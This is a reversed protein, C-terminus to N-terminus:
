TKGELPSSMPRGYQRAWMTPPHFPEISPPLSRATQGGPPLPQGEGLEGMRDSRHASRLLSVLRGVITTRSSLPAVCVTSSLVAGPELCSDDTLICQDLRAAAGVRCREWVASRSIVAQEAVTSGAGVTTPGIIMAGPAIVCGPGVLVDGVFRVASDVRASTHIWAGNVRAYGPLPPGGSVTEELAWMNLALYSTADTVRPPLEGGAAFTGVFKGNNYLRPILTEKIDQYGLDPVEEIVGPSFVYIGVPQANEGVSGNRPEGEGVVVTLAARSSKHAELLKLLDVQPVITGEVVVFASARRGVSADRACGAPGRPMIDEYYELAMDWGAGDGLRRLLVTTDSNGCISAQTVGGGRLWQLVHWILPRGAVPLLPRAVVSELVDTNWAHVGALVIGRVGVPEQSEREGKRRPEQQGGALGHATKTKGNRM